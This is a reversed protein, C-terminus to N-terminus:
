RRQPMPLEDVSGTITSPNQVPQGTTDLQTEGQDHTQNLVQHNQAWV